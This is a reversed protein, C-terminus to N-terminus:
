QSQPLRKLLHPMLGSKAADDVQIVNIPYNKWDGDLKERLLANVVAASELKQRTTTMGQLVFLKSPDPNATYKVIEATLDAILDSPDQTDTWVDEKQTEDWIFPASPNDGETNGLIVLRGPGQWIQGLTTKGWDGQPVIMTNLVSYLQKYFAIEQKTNM